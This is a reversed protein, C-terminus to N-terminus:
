VYGFYLRIVVFGWSVKANHIDLQRLAFIVTSAEGSIARLTGPDPYQVFETNVLLWYEAPCWLMTVTVCLPHHWSLGQSCLSPSLM